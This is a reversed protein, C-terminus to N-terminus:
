LAQLNVLYFLLAVVGFLLPFYHTLWRCFVRLASTIKANNQRCNTHTDPENPRVKGVSERERGTVM